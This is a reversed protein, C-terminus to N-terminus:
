TDSSTGEVIQLVTGFHSFWQLSRFHVIKTSKIFIYFTYKIGRRRSHVCRRGLKTSVMNHNIKLQYTVPLPRALASVTDTVCVQM